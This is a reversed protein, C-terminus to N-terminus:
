RRRDPVGSWDILASAEELDGVVADAVGSFSAADVEPVAVVPIGARKAGLVGPMSDELVLCRPPAVGCREAALLFIAPDPKKRPVDDGTVWVDFLPALGRAELVRRVVRAPSSSAVAVRLGACKAKTVLARAGRQEAIEGVLGLFVDVLAGPDRAPDFGRGAREAMRAVTEPIGTGRCAHMDADSWTAGWSAMLRQEARGWVPESDVLLGDMDFLLADPAFRAM